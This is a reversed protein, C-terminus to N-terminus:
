VRVIVKRVRKRFIHSKCPSTELAVAHLQNWRKTTRYVICYKGIGTRQKRARIKRDHDDKSPYCPGQLRDGTAEWAWEGIYTNFLACIPAIKRRLAVTKGASDSTVNAFKAVKKRVRELANIQGKRYPDWCRLGM